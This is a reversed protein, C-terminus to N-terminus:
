IAHQIVKEAGPVAPGRIVGISGGIDDPGIGPVSRLPIVPILSIRVVPFTELSMIGIPAAVFITAMIVPFKILLVVMALASTPM